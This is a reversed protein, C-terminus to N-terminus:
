VEVARLTGGVGTPWLIQGQSSDRKGDSDVWNQLGLVEKM